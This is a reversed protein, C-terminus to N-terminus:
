GDIQELAKKAAAQSARKKSAGFGRGFEKDEILVRVEFVKDHDPGNASVVNYHPTVKMREQTFEQLITKYDTQVLQYLDSELRAEFLKGIVRDAEEFGSDCFIGGFVAELADALLSARTRAGSSHEGKGLVISKGLGLGKAIDALSKENVLSSRIRSLEGESFREARIMLSNSISLGLVSDGLFELRENWPLKLLNERSLITTMETVATRHTLAEFLLNPNKFTYGLRAQFGEFTRYIPRHHEWLKKYAPM